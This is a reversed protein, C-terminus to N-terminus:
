WTKYMISQERLNEKLQFVKRWLVYTTVLTIVFGAIKM